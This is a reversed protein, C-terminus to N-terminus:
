RMLRLGVVAMRENRLATLDELRFGSTIDLTMRQTMRGEVISLM